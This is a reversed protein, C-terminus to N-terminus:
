LFVDICIHLLNYKNFSIFFMPNDELNHLISSSSSVPAVFSDDDGLGVNDDDDGGLLSEDSGRHLLKTGYICIHNVAHKTNLKIKFFSISHTCTHTRAHTHTHTHTCGHTNQLFPQVLRTYKNSPRTLYM